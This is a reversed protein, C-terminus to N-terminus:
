GIELNALYRQMAAQCFFQGSDSSSGPNLTVFTKQAAKKWFLPKQM